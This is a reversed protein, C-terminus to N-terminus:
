RGPAAAMQDHQALATRGLALLIGLLVVCAAGLVVYVLWPWRETLPKPPPQYIPNREIPGLTVRLPAPELRAPLLSEYDYQPPQATPQGFYLRVPLVLEATPTFSVERAPATYTVSQIDLPPNGKDTVVLRLRRVTIESPLEIVQTPSKDGRRREWVGSTEVRNSRLIAEEDETGPIELRYSRRYETDGITFTLRQCPVPAGFDIMWASGPGGDGREPERPGLRAPLTVDEGPVRITQWVSASDIEPRDDSLGPDPFVRVRLYRYRSPTYHFRKIEVVQSGVQFHILYKEDLKLESWTDGDNSGQLQVRRRFNLGNVTLRIENNEDPAKGLDLSLEASLDPGSGRNFARASLQQQEDRARRIRLAYPVEQEKADFLRLDGLDSRAHDFVSPTVIFDVWQPPQKWGPLEVPQCWEWATLPEAAPRPVAPNIPNAPAPPEQAGVILFLVGLALTVVFSRVNMPQKAWKM